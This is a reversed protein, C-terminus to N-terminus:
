QLRIGAFHQRRHPRVGTNGSRQRRRGAVRRRQDDHRGHLYQQRDPRRQGEHDPRRSGTLTGSVTLTDGGGLRYSTGSPTLVGSYTRAGVAGLYLGAYSGMNIAESSDATLAITGASSTVIKGSNLWGMVTGYPGAVDLFGADNITISGTGPLSNPGFHLHGGNITTGASYTNTGTLTLTGTGSKTLSGGTSGLVSAFTM